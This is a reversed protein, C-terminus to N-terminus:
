KKVPRVRAIVRGPTGGSPGEFRTFSVMFRRDGDAALVV